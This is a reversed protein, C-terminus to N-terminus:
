TVLGTKLMTVTCRTYARLSKFGVTELVSVGSTDCSELLASNVKLRSSSFKIFSSFATSFDTANIEESPMPTVTVLIEMQLSVFMFFCYSLVLM